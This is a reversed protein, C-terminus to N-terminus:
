KKLNDLEEYVDELEKATSDRQAQVVELEKLVHEVKLTDPQDVLTDPLTQTRLTFGAVKSLRELMTEDEDVWITEENALMMDTAAQMIDQRMVVLKAEADVEDNKAAVLAAVRDSLICSLCSGCKDSTCVSIMEYKIM